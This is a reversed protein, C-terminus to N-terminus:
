PETPPEPAASPGDKTPVGRWYTALGSGTVNMLAGFVAPALGVTAAKGMEVAIGSALGGNQQGVELAITRCTTRDMRLLRCLWYGLAYGGVNHLLCALLLLLGIALLFDRGASTIITLIVAIGAMSALAMISSLADRRDRFLRNVILGAAPPLVLVWLMISLIAKAAYREPADSMAGLLFQVGVITLAFAAVELWFTRKAVRGYAIANFLVGAMIPFIVMRIVGSTMNWFDVPVFQGALTKMLFPTMVPAALTACVTLTVSLPLNARALFVMVNSALGSSSCGILILGAAIEPELRFAHALSFGVLPMITFQCVLGVGVAKPRRIVNEFDKLSMQSGVTFMIVQLLPVILVTLTLDGVRTIPHFLALAVASLIVMTYTFSRFTERGGACAGALGLFLLVVFAGAARGQGVLALAAAVLACVAAAGLFRGSHRTLSNRM